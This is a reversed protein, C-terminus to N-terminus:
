AQPLEPLDPLDSGGAVEPEFNYLMAQGCANILLMTRKFYEAIRGTSQRSNLFLFPPGIRESRLIENNNIITM